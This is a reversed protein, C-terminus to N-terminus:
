PILWSIKFCREETCVHMFSVQFPILWGKFEEKSSPGHLGHDQGLSPAMWVRLEEGATINRTSRFYIEDGDTTRIAEMNQEDEYRAPNVENM